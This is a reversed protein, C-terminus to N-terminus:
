QPLRRAPFSSASRIDVAGRDAKLRGAANIRSSNRWNRPSKSAPIVIKGGPGPAAADLLSLLQGTSSVNIVVGSRKGNTVNSRSPVTVASFGPNDFPPANALPQPDNAGAGAFTGTTTGNGGFGTYNANNTFVDAPNLGGVTVVVSNFITVADAALIKASNGGLTVNSIFNLQGNSGPAYLELTTDASLTGGGINLVGNTGLAGVKLVDAHVSANNFTIAGDGDILTLFTGGADYTGGNINIAAAAAGDSGLIQVTADNTVNAPGSVNMNITANGGITGGPDNIIQATLFAASLSAASVDITADSGIAGGGFGSGNDNNLIQFTADSQSSIDGAIGFDILANGGINGDNFNSISTFLLGTASVNAATVNITADSGITGGTGGTSLINRNNLIKFTVDGTISLNGAINMNITADSDIVGGNTNKNTNDFYVLLSGATLNAANVAITANGHLIGGLPSGSDSDNLIFLTGDGVITFDGSVDWTYTANGNLTRGTNSIGSGSGPSGFFDNNLNGGISVSGASILVTADSGIFSGLMSGNPAQDDFRSSIVFGADGTTTLAGGVTFILSAASGITGGSRNNILADISDATLDGEVTVLLNGGTGIHGAPNIIVVDNDYNEVFLTLVQSTLNGGVTLTLNGGNSITGDTNQITFSTGGSSTILDGGTTVLINGGNGINGGSSNNIEALLSAANLDGGVTLTINAGDTVIVGPVNFNLTFSLDGVTLNGGPNVVINGGNGTTGSLSFINLNFAGGITTDGGSALDIEGGNAVGSAETTLSLDGGIEINGGANFSINLVDKLGNTLGNNTQSVTLSDTALINGESGLFFNTTGSVSSDFTLNSGSGRAYIALFPIDQFALDSTLTISGNQTALFLLDLGSFTITGGPPGSTIDGVSILALNKTGGSATSITPNGTLELGAFKFVALPLRSETNSFARDVDIQTDFASTSGFFYASAPGDQAPGRYIKGFDTQGNTTITPDTTITTDSSVVYPNPSTIVIPRGFKGPPPTPTIPPTPTPTMTPPTPTPSEGSRTENANAQDLVGTHTPDLLSVITGRGFIVLNTEILGGASKETTQANIERAILSDSPLPPFGNILLSTKMLRDLDVDVPDPLGKGNPNVILMQGAHLLVSEGIQGRRFIRGTGELIIFKIYADPHYELLVTTGTIAATVAATNIQAGGANKPVRLLMAGGGLELNRTGENFSFITNAGLRALTQDTFTLEARSEIGTRVATGNRVEDKVSAPRPAAQAPLLKVDKIVQSVQAQQLRAAHLPAPSLGLLLLAVVPHLRACDGLSFLISRGRCLLQGLSTTILM